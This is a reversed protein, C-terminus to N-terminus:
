MLNSPWRFELVTEYPYCTSPELHSGVSSPNTQCFFILRVPSTEQDKYANVQTQNDTYWNLLDM